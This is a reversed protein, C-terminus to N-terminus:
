KWNNINTTGISHYLSDIRQNKLYIERILVKEMIGDKISFINIKEKRVVDCLMM